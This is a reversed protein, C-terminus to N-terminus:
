DCSIAQSAPIAKIANSGKMTKSHEKNKSAIWRYFGAKDFRPSDLLNEAYEISGFKRGSIQKDANLEKINKVIRHFCQSPTYTYFISCYIM